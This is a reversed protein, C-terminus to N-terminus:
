LSTIECVGGACALEGSLDTNDTEETVNELNIEHLSKEDNFSEFLPNLTLLFEIVKDRFEKETPNKIGKLRFWIMAWSGGIIHPLLDLAREIEFKQDERM